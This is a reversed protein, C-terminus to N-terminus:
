EKGKIVDKGYSEAVPNGYISLATGANALRDIDAKATDDLKNVNLELTKLM